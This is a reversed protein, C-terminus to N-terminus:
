WSCEHLRRCADCSTPFWWCTCCRSPSTGTRCWRSRGGRRSSATPCLPWLTLPPPAAEGAAMVAKRYSPTLVLTVRFAHHSPRLATKFVIMVRAAAVVVVVTMTMTVALLVSNVHRGATAAAARLVFRERHVWPGVFRVALFHRPRPIPHPPALLCSSAALELLSVSVRNPSLNCRRRLSVKQFIWCAADHMDRVDQCLGVVAAFHEFCCRDGSRKDVVQITGDVLARKLAFAVEVAWHGRLLLSGDERSAHRPQAPRGPAARGAAPSGRLRAHPAARKNQKYQSRKSCTTGAPSFLSAM